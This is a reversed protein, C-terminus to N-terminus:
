PSVKRDFLIRTGIGALYGLMIALAAAPGDNVATIVVAALVFIPVYIPRLMSEGKTLEALETATHPFLYTAM